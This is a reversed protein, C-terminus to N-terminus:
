KRKAPEFFTASYRPPSNEPGCLQGPFLVRSMDGALRLALFTPTICRGKDHVDGSTWQLNSVYSQGPTAALPPVVPGPHMGPNSHMATQLRNLQRDEFEIEPRRPLACPQSATNRVTLRVGAHSMRNPDGNGDIRMAIQNSTCPSLSFANLPEQAQSIQAFGIAGFFLSFLFRCHTHKM